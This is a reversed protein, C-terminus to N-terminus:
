SESSPTANPRFTCCNTSSSALTSDSRSAAWRPTNGSHSCDIQPGSAVPARPGNLALLDSECGDDFTIVVSPRDGDEGELAQGVSMGRLGLSHLHELQARFDAAPIVYRTYGPDDRCLSRGPVQLEHYMLYVTRHGTM